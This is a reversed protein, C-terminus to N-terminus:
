SRPEQVRSEPEAPTAERLVGLRELYEGAVRAVVELQEVRHDLHVLQLLAPHHGLERLVEVRQHALPHRQEAEGELRFRVVHALGRAQYQRGTELSLPSPNDGEIRNRLLPGGLQQGANLHGARRHVREFADVSCDQDGLPLLEGLEVPALDGLSHRIRQEDGTIVEEVRLYHPVGADGVGRDPAWARTVAGRGNAYRGSLLRLVYVPSPTCASIRAPPSPVRRRGRVLVTGFGTSGRAPRGCM